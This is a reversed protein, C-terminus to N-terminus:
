VNNGEYDLSGESTLVCAGGGPAPMFSEPSEYLLLAM